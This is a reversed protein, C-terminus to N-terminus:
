SDKYCNIIRVFCGLIAPVSHANGHWHDYGLKDGLWRVLRLGSGEGSHWPRNMHLTSALVAHVAMGSNDVWRM